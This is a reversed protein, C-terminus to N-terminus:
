LELTGRKLERPEAEPREELRLERKESDAAAAAEEEEAPLLQPLECLRLQPISFGEGVRPSDRGWFFAERFCSEARGAESDTSASGSSGEVEAASM